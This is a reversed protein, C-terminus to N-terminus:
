AKQSNTMATGSIISNWRFETTAVKAKSERYDNQANEQAQSKEAMLM